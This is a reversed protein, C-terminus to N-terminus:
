PTGPPKGWPCDPADAFRGREPLYPRRGCAQQTEIRALKLALGRRRAALPVREDPPLGGGIAIEAERERWAATNGLRQREYVSLWETCAVPLKDCWRAYPAAAEPEGRALHHRLLVDALGLHGRQFAAVCLPLLAPPLETNGDMVDTSACLAVAAVEDGGQAQAMLEPFRQRERVLLQRRLLEGVIREQPTGAALMARALAIGDGRGQVLAMQLSMQTPTSENIQRLMALAREHLPAADGLAGMGGIVGMAWALREDPTRPEGLGGYPDPMRAAQGARLYVVQRARANGALAAKHWWAVAEAGRCTDVACADLLVAWWHMAVPDGARAAPELAALRDHRGAALDALVSRDDTAAAPRALGGAILILLLLRKM